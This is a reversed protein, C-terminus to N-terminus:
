KLENLDMVILEKVADLCKKFDKKHQGLAEEIENDIVELLEERINENENM